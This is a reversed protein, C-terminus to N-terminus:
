LTVEILSPNTDDFVVLFKSGGRLCTWIPGAQDQLSQEQSCGLLANVARKAAKSDSVALQVWYTHDDDGCGNLPRPSELQPVLRALEAAGKDIANRAEDSCSPGDQGLTCGTISGLTFLGVVLCGTLAKVARSSNM